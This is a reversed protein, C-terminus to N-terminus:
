KTNLYVKHIKAAYKRKVANKKCRSCGSGLNQMEKNFIAQLQEWGAFTCPQGNIFKNYEDIYQQHREPPLKAM